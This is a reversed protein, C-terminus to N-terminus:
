YYDLSICFSWLWHAHSIKKTRVLHVMIQYWDCWGIVFLGFNTCSKRAPRSGSTPIQHHCLLKPDSLQAYKRSILQHSSLPVPLLSSITLSPLLLSPPSWQSRLITLIPGLLYLSLVQVFDSFLHINLLIRCTLQPKLSQGNLKIISSKGGWVM